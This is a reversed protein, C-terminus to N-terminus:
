RYRTRNQVQVGYLVGYPACTGIYLYQLIRFGSVPFIRYLLSNKRELNSGLNRTATRQPQDVVGYPTGEAVEVLQDDGESVGSQSDVAFPDAPWKPRQPKAM